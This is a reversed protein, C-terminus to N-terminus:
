DWLPMSFLVIDDIQGKYDLSYFGWSIPGGFTVKSNKIVLPLTLQSGSDESYVSTFRSNCIKAMSAM